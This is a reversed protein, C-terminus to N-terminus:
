PRCATLKWIGDPPVFRRGDRKQDWFAKSLGPLQLHPPAKPVGEADPDVRRLTEDFYYLTATPAGTPDFRKGIPTPPKVMFIHAVGFGPPHAVAFEASLKQRNEALRIVWPRDSETDSRAVHTIEWANTEGDGASWDDDADIATYVARLLPCDLAAAPTAALAAVLATAIFKTPFM